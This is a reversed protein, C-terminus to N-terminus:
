KIQGRLKGAPNLISHVNVYVPLTMLSDYQTDNITITRPVNFDSPANALPVIIPGNQGPAGAHIHAMTLQDTPEVNDVTILSYVTKDSTLRIVALGTATTTVPPVEQSGQLPVNAALTITSNL